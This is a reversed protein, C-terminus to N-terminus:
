KEKLLKLIKFNLKQEKDEEQKKYLNYADLLKDRVDINNISYYQEDELSTDYYKVRITNYSTGYYITFGNKVKNDVLIFYKYEGNGLEEIYKFEVNDKCLFKTMEKVTNEYNIRNNM